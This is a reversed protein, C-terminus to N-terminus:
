QLHLSPRILLGGVIVECTPARKRQKDLMMLAQTTYRSNVNCSAHLGAHVREKCLKDRAYLHTLGTWGKRSYVSQVALPAALRPCAFPTPM